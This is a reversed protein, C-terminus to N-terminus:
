RAGAGAYTTSLYHEWSNTLIPGSCSSLIVGETWERLSYGTIFRSYSIQRIVTQAESFTLPRRQVEVGVPIRKGCHVCTM